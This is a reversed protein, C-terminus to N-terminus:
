VVTTGGDIIKDDRDELEVESYIALAALQM